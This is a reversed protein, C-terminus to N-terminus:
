ARDIERARLAVLDRIVDDPPPQDARFRVTGKSLAFGDLRERVADLAEPSFPYLGLHKTAAKIGLLPRGHLLLAPMGYSTGEEAEPVQRRAAALVREYAAREPAPLTQLYDRVPTSM